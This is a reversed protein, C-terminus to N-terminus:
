KLLLTGNDRSNIHFLCHWYFAENWLLILIWNSSMSTKKCSSTSLDWSLWSWSWCSTRQRVSVSWGSLILITWSSCSTPKECCIRAYQHTTIMMRWSKSLLQSRHGLVYPPNINPHRHWLFCKGLVTLWMYQKHNNHAPLPIDSHCLLCFMQQFM